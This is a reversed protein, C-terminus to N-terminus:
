QFVETSICMERRVDDAAADTALWMGNSEAAILRYAPFFMPGRNEADCVMAGNNDALIARCRLCRQVLAIPEGAVHYIM